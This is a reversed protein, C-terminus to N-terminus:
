VFAEEAPSVRADNVKYVVEDTIGEGENPNFHSYVQDACSVPPGVFVHCGLDKLIQFTDDMGDNPEAIVVNFKELEQM